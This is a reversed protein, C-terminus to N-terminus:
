RHGRHRQEETSALVCRANGVLLMLPDAGTVPSCPGGRTDSILPVVGAVPSRPGRTDSMLSVAYAVPSCPGVRTDSMLPVVGAIPSRPGRTDSM